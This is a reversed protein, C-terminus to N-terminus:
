VMSGFPFFDSTATTARYSTPLDRFSVLEIAAPLVFSLMCSIEPRITLFFLFMTSVEHYTPVHSSM